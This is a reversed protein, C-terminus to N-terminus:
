RIVPTWNGRWDFSETAAFQKKYDYFSPEVYAYGPYYYAMGQETAWEMTKLMTFIGLSRKKEVPDFFAYIASASVVGCDIFTVAVIRGYIRVTLQILDTPIHATLSIFTFLSDPVNETFRSKHWDFLQFVDTSLSPPGISIEVNANRRMVRRQSRSLKFDNLRVRLPLVRKIEGNHVGLNYRSFRKGFHRWGDALLLDFVAPDIAEYAYFYENIYEIEFDPTGTM